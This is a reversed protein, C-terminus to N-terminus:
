SSGGAATVTAIEPRRAPALPAGLEVMTGDADVRFTRGRWTVTRGLWARVFLASAVLDRVPLLLLSRLDAGRGAILSHALAASTARLAVAAVALAAFTSAHGAPTALVLAVLAFAVGHHSVLTAAYGAPQCTRVTRNWRLVRALTDRLSSDLRIPVCAPAIAVRRGTAAVRKGLHHDDALVQGLARIGGIADLAERRVANAAGLGFRIEGALTAAVLVSPVFDANIQLAELRSALTGSPVGRYLATALGVTPDALPALLARLLGPDFTVDSDVLVLVPNKALAELPELAAVKRNTARSASGAVVTMCTRERALAQAVAAGPDDALASGVLLQDGEELCALLSALNDRLRPENGCVPVLVSVRPRPAPAAQKLGRRFRAAAFVTVLNYVAATGSLAGATWASISLGDDLGLAALPL